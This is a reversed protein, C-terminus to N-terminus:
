PMRSGRCRMLQGGCGRRVKLIQAATETAADVTTGTEHAHATIADVVRTSQLVLPVLGTAMRQRPALATCAWFV